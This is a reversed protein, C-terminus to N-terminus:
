LSSYDASSIIQLLKQKAYRIQMRVAEHKEGTLQSIEKASYDSLYLIIAQQQQKPLEKIANKLLRSDEQKMNMFAPDTFSNNDKNAGEDVESLSIFPNYAVGDDDKVVPRREPGHIRRYEDFFRRKAVTFLYNMFKGKGQYTACSKWLAEWTIQMCDEADLHGTTSLTLKKLYNYLRSNTERYLQLQAFEDGKCFKLYLSELEGDSIQM